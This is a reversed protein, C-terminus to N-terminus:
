YQLTLSLNEFRIEQNSKADDFELILDVENSKLFNITGGSLKQISETLENVIPTRFTTKTLKKLKKPHVLPENIEIKYGKYPLRFIWPLQPETIYDIAKGDLFYVPQYTSSNTFILESDEDNILCLGFPLYENNKFNSREWLKTPKTREKQIEVQNQVWLIELFFNEFYFKRNTTGQGPHIRSSGESLGFKVLEDAEVGSNSSFIFIHDIKM